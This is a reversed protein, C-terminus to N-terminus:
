GRALESSVNDCLRDKTSAWRKALQSYIRNTTYFSLLLHSGRFYGIITSFQFVKPLYLPVGRVLVGYDDTCNIDDQGRRGAPRYSKMTSYILNGISYQGFCQKEIPQQYLRLNTVARKSKVSSKWERRM